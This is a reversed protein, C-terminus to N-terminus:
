IRVLVRRGSIDFSISEIMAAPPSMVDTRTLMSSAPNIMSTVHGMETLGVFGWPSMPMAIDRDESLM